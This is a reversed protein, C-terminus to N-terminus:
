MIDSDSREEESAASALLKELEEKSRDHVLIEEQDQVNVWSEIPYLSIIATHM